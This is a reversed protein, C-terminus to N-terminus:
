VACCIWFSFVLLAIYMAWHSMIAGYSLEGKVQENSFFGSVGTFCVQISGCNQRLVVRKRNLRHRTKSETCLPFLIFLLFLCDFDSIHMHGHTLPRPHILPHIIDRYAHPPGLPCGHWCKLRLGFCHVVGCGTIIERGVVIM